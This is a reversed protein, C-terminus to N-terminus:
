TVIVHPASVLLLITAMVTFLTFIILCLRDLVMAAFKWDCQTADADDDSRIKETIVRLEKLILTLERVAGSPLPTGIQDEFYPLESPSRFFCWETFSNPIVFHQFSFPLLTKFSHTVNWYFDNQMDANHLLVNLFNQFFSWSSHSLELESNTNTMLHM